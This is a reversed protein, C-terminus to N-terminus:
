GTWLSLWSAMGVSLETSACLFNISPLFCCGLSWVYRWANVPTTSSQGKTISLKINDGIGDLGGDVKQAQINLESPYSSLKKLVFPIKM